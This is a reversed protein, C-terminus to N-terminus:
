WNIVAPLDMYGIQYGPTVFGVRLDRLVRPLAGDLARLHLEFIFAISPVIGFILADDHGRVVEGGRELFV